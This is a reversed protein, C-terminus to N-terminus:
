RRNNCTFGVTHNGWDKFVNAFTTVNQEDKGQIETGDLHVFDNGVVPVTVSGPEKAGDWTGLADKAWFYVTHGATAVKPQVTKGPDVKWWGSTMWRGTDDPMKFRMAIWMPGSSCANKLTVTIVSPAMEKSRRALWVEYKQSLEKASAVAREERLKAEAAAAERQLRDAEEQRQREAQALDTQKRAEAAKRQRDAEAAAKRQRDAEAADADKRKQEAAAIAQTEAM